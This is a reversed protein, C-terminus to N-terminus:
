PSPPCAGKPCWRDRQTNAWAAHEFLDLYEGNARRTVTLGDAAVGKGTTFVKGNPSLCLLDLEEPINQHGAADMHTNGLGSSSYRGPGTPVETRGVATLLGLLQIAVTYAPRARRFAM